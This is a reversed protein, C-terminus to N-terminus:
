FLLNLNRWHIKAIEYNDGRPFPSIGFWCLISQGLKTSILVATWYFNQLNQGLIKAIEYNDGRPFPTACWKFLSSNEGLSAKHWSQNFNARHNQPLFNKFKVLINKSNWLLYSLLSSLLVLSFRIKFSFCFFKFLFPLKCFKNLKKKWIYLEQYRCTGFYLSSCIWFYRMFQM